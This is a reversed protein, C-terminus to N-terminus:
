SESDPDNTTLKTVEELSLETLRAIEEVEMGKSLLNRILQRKALEIGQEIGQGIGQEIGQEVGRQQAERVLKEKEQQYLPQLRMILEKDESELEEEQKLQLNERLTYLLELAKQRFPNSQSLGELEDIAEKQVRNRGLVRLWLTEQTKPLQHIVIINTSLANGLTYFGTLEDPTSIANFGSLVAPSATPTLIWLKLVSEKAFSSKERKAQRKMEAKVLLLKLLCDRIQDGNIPNRYPEFISPSSAMRGLCGLENLKGMDELAPEFWVDIYQDEASVRRQSNVKGFPELLTEFYDKAFKDHILRTMFDKLLSDTECNYDISNM